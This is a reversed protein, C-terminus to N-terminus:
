GANVRTGVPTAERTQRGLRGRLASPAKGARGMLPLVLLGRGVPAAKKTAAYPRWVTFKVRVGHLRRISVHAAIRSSQEGLQNDYPSPSM